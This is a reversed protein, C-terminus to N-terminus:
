VFNSRYIYDLIKTKIVNRWRKYGVSSIFKHHDLYVEKFPFLLSYVLKIQVLAQWLLISYKGLICYNAILIYKLIIM